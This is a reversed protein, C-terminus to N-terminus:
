SKVKTVPLNMIEVPDGATTALDDTKEEFISTDSVRVDAVVEFLKGFRALGVRSEALVWHAANWDDLQTPLYKSLAVGNQPM